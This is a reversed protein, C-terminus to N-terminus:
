LYPKLCTYFVSTRIFRIKSDSKKKSILLLDYMWFDVESKILLMKWWELDFQKSFSFM